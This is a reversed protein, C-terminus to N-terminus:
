RYLSVLFTHTHNKVMEVVQIIFWWILHKIVNKIGIIIGLDPMSIITCIEFNSSNFRSYYDVVYGSQLSVFWQETLGWSWFVICFSQLQQFHIDHSQCVCLCTSSDFWNTKTGPTIETCTKNGLWLIDNFPIWILRQGVNM